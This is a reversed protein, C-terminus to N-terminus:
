GMSYWSEGKSLNDPMLLTFSDPTLFYFLLTHHQAIRSLPNVLYMPLYALLDMLHWCKGRSLYFRRFLIIFYPADPGVGEGQRTFDNRMLVPYFLLTPCM